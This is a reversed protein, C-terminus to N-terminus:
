QRRGPGTGQQPFNRRQGSLNLAGTIQFNRCTCKSRLTWRLPHTEVNNRTGMQPVTALLADSLAQSSSQQIRPPVHCPKKRIATIGKSHVIMVIAFPGGPIEAFSTKPCQFNGVLRWIWWVSHLVSGDSLSHSQAKSLVQSCSAVMSFVHFFWTSSQETSLQFPWIRTM